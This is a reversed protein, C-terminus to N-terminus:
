NKVMEGACRAEAGYRRHTPFTELAAGIAEVEGGHQAREPEAARGCSSGSIMMMLMMYIVIAVLVRTVHDPLLMDIRSGEGMNVVGQEAGGGGGEEGGGKLLLFQHHTHSLVAGEIVELDQEGYHVQVLTCVDVIPAEELPHLHLQLFAVGQAIDRAIRRDIVQGQGARIM